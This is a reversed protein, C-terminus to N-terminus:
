IEMQEIPDTGYMKRHSESWTNYKKLRAERYYIARSRAYSFGASIREEMDPCNKTLSERLQKRSILYSHHFIDFLQSAASIMSLPKIALYDRQFYEETMGAYGNERVYARFKDKMEIRWRVLMNSFADYDAMQASESVETHASIDTRYVDKFRMEIIDMIREANEMSERIYMSKWETNFTKWDGYLQTHVRAESSYPCTAHVPRPEHKLINVIFWDMLSMQRFAFPLTTAISICIVVFGAGAAWDPVVDFIGSFVAFFDVLAEIYFHATEM